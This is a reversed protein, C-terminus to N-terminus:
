FGMIIKKDKKSSEYIALIIEVAKRGEYLNVLPEKDNIIADIMDSIQMEHYKTPFATPDSAGKVDSETCRLEEPLDLGEVDWKIIRDEEIVVSGKTGCIEMRRPYGPSVSTTGQIIGMAGNEYEVIANATDEVEINHLLTKTNGYVSKVPGVLYTLMDIGHIGQNMLAGGGDMAWTGRWNSSSFYESSRYYKMYIDGILINGLAGDSIAKKVFQIAPTFRLQSIVCVKVGNEECIDTLENLQEYTICLPKEIVIHKKHKAAQIALPAHLGSPTCINIVSIEKCNLMDEYNEYFNCNYVEAFKEGAPVFKDTVAILEARGDKIISEAHWKSIVGCGVIGFGIKNNM